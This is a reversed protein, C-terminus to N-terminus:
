RISEGHARRMDYEKLLREITLDPRNWLRQCALVLLQRRDALVADIDKRALGDATLRTGLQTALTQDLEGGVTPLLEGADTVDALTMRDAPTGDPVIHKIVVANQLYHVVVYSGDMDPGPGGRSNTTIPVLSFRRV